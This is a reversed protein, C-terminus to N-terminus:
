HKSLHRAALALKRVAESRRAYVVDVDVQLAQAIEESTFGERDLQLIRRQTDSLDAKEILRNLLDNMHAGAEKRIMESEPDDMTERLFPEAEEFSVRPERSGRKKATEWRFIDNKANALRRYLGPGRLTAQIESESRGARVEKEILMSVVDEHTNAGLDSLLVRSAARTAYEVSERFSLEFSEATTM